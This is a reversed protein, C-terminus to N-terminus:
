GRRCRWRESICTLDTDSSSGVIPMKSDGHSVRTEPYGGSSNSLADELLEVLHVTRIGLGLTPSTETEGDGLLDDLHQPPRMQTSDVLLSLSSRGSPVERARASNRFPQRVHGLADEDDLVLFVQAADQAIEEGSLTAVDDSAASPRSPHRYGLGLVRVEDEHVELQGDEVARSALRCILVSGLRSVVDIM